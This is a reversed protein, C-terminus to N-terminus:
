KSRVKVRTIKQGKRIIATIRENREECDKVIKDLDASISQRTM